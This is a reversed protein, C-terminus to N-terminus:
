KINSEQSEYTDSMDDYSTIRPCIGKNRFRGNNCNDCLVRFGEPYNHKRLWAYINRKKLYKRHQTGNGNIHDITLMLPTTEHCGCECQCKYGGYHNFVEDKILNYNKRSSIRLAAKCKEHHAFYYKMQIARYKSPNAAYRERRKINIEEKNM